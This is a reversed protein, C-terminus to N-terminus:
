YVPGKLVNLTWIVAPLQAEKVGAAENQTGELNFAGTNRVVGLLDNLGVVEVVTLGVESDKGM